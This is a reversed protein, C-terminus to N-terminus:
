YKWSGRPVHIVAYNDSYVRQWGDLRNLLAVRPDDPSLLTWRIGYSRLADELQWGTGPGRMFKKAFGELFLQDSRGDIFTPIGHFILSGGFNYDNFVPGTLGHRAAFALAGSVATNEPPATVLRPLLLALMAFGAFCLAVIPRTHAIIRRELADRPAAIWTDLSLRPFQRALEPAVIVPLLPFFLFIFRVHTLFLYLLLVVLLTRAVGLRFGSALAAGLMLLVAALQPVSNQANFAQWESIQPVAENAGAVTFTALMAHWGYPHVLSVLPCLVLFLLWQRLQEPRSLRWRELFDLCAFGAILFGLTFAAHLNAWLVLLLLLWWRPARGQWSSAFLQHTWLIAIVVTLLHPRASLAPQALGVGLLAGAVAYLPNLFRSLAMFLAGAALALGAATLLVVGQWGGASFAAFFSLQSLWEKAIWPRGAFSHSFPDVTPVAANQWIWSGTRIHWWIDPDGLLSERRYVAFGAWLLATVLGFVVGIRWTATESSVSSDTFPM